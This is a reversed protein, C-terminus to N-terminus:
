NKPSFKSLHSCLRIQKIHTQYIQDKKVINLNPKQLMRTIRSSKKWTEDISLEWTHEYMITKQTYM